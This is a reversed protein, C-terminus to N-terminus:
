FPELEAWNDGVQVEIELPVALTFTETMVKTLIPIFDVVRHEPVQFDLEDHVQLLLLTMLDSRDYLTEQMKIMVKRMIEAAGGQVPHNLAARWDTPGVYRRSKFYPTEVYGNREAIAKQCEMWEEVPYALMYAQYFQQAEDRACSLKRQLGHVGMGYIIGFNIAKAIRRQDDSVLELPVNFLTAATMRHPDGGALFIEAFRWDGFQRVILDALVRLDIQSYDAKVWKYGPPVVFAKRVLYGAVPEVIVNHLDLDFSAIRTSATIPRFQSHIRGHLTRTVLPQLHHSLAYYMQRLNLIVSVIPHQDEIQLLHEKGTPFFDGQNKVQGPGPVLKLRDFLLESLRRYQYVSIPNSAVSDLWDQLELIKNEIDDKMRHLYELDVQIGNLTMQKLVPLLPYDVQRHKLQNNPQSLKQAYYLRMVLDATAASYTAADDIPAENYPIKKKGVGTLAEIEPFDYGLVRKVIYPFNRPAFKNHRGNDVGHETVLVDYVPESVRIKHRELVILAFVTDYFCITIWDEICIFQLWPLVDELSLGPHDAHALPIYFGTRPRPSFGLGVLECTMPDSTDTRVDLAVHASDLVEKFLATMMEHTDVIQYHKTM